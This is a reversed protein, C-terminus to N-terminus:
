RPWHWRQSTTATTLKFQLQYAYPVLPLVQWYVSQLFLQCDWISEFGRLDMQWHVTLQLHFMGESFTQNKEYRIQEIAAIKKLLSPAKTAFLALYERLINETQFLQLPASLWSLDTYQKPLQRNRQAPTCRTILEWQWGLPNDLLDGAVKGPAYQDFPKDGQHAWVSLSLWDIESLDGALQLGLRNEEYFAFYSAPANAAQPYTTLAAPIIQKHNGQTGYLSAVSLIDSPSVAKQLPHIWHTDRITPQRIPVADTEYRNFIWTSNLILRVKETNLQQNDLRDPWDFLLHLQEDALVTLPVKFQIKIILLTEPALGYHLLPPFFDQFAHPQHALVEISCATASGQQTNAYVQTCQSLQQFFAVSYEPSGQVSFQLVHDLVLARQPNTNKLTLILRTHSQDCQKKQDICALPYLTMSHPLQFYCPATAASRVHDSIPTLTITQATLAEKQCYTKEPNVAILAVAPTPVMLFPVLPQWLYNLLRPLGTELHLEVQNRLTAFAAELAHNVSEGSM